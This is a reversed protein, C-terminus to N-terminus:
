KSTDQGCSTNWCQDGYAPFGPTIGHKAKWTPHTSCYRPTVPVSRGDAIVRWRSTSPIPGRARIETGIRILSISNAGVVGRARVSAEGKLVPPIDNLTFDVLGWMQMQLHHVSWAMHRPFTSTWSQEAWQQISWAFAFMKDRRMVHFDTSTSSTDQKLMYCQYEFVGFCLPETWHSEGGQTFQMQPLEFAAPVYNTLLQPNQGDRWPVAVLEAWWVPPDQMQKIQWDVWKTHHCIADPAAKQM